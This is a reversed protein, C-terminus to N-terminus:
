AERARRQQEFQGKIRRLQHTFVQVQLVVDDLLFLVLALVFGSDLGLDFIRLIALVVLIGGLSFSLGVDLLLVVLVASLRRCERGGSAKGDRVGSVDYPGARLHVLAFGGDWVGDGVALGCVGHQCGTDRVGEGEGRERREWLAFEVEERPADAVGDLVDGFAVCLLRQESEELQNLVQLALPRLHRVPLAQRNHLARLIDILSHPRDTLATLIPLALSPQVAHTMAPQLTLRNRPQHLLNSLMNLQLLSLHLPPQAQLKTTHPKAHNPTPNPFPKAQFYAPVTTGKSKHALLNVLIFQMTQFM